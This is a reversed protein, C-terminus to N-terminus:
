ENTREAQLRRHSLSAGAGEARGGHKRNQRSPAITGVAGREWLPVACLPGNHTPRFSGASRLNVPACKKRENGRGRSSCHGKSRARTWGFTWTGAADTAPSSGSLSRGGGRAGWTQSKPPFTSYNWSREAGVAPQYYICDHTSGSSTDTSAFAKPPVFEESEGSRVGGRRLKRAGLSYHAM